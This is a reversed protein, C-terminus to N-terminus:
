PVPESAGEAEEPPVVDRFFTWYLGAHVLQLAAALELPLGLWFDQFLAGAVAPGPMALVRSPLNSLGAVRSREPPPAIGMVYSQRVPVTVANVLMRVLYVAGALTFTPLLPIVALLAASAVRLQAVTRVAGGLRRVVWPAGLYPLAAALNVVFFLAGVAAPGVGYRLHFWLVLIPGLFGVALGNTGNTLALRWLLRRTRPSLPPLATRGVRHGSDERVPLVAVAMLLGLIATLWFVAAYGAHRTGWGEADVLRPLGALPAGLAAALVGVLSLASFVATRERDPSLEAILAQEAPYYPGFAGGSAAGGGRGITGFAAAVLLLGYSRSLAFVVGGASTALALGVLVAKRGYRDAVFGVAATLLASAGAATALLAGVHVASFGLETLFLPVVVALYGQTLSRLARGALLYRLDGQRIAQYGTAITM